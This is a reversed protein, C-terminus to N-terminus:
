ISNQIYEKLKEISVREQQMTDRNRITVTDKLEANSEGLTDFDVTVCFPTGIEDQRRYRKGINGNDDFESMFNEAVISYVEQAKAVLDPKNKLLPFVAVKIPSLRYDLKLVDRTQGNELTETTHANDLFALLIRNLGVSSEVVNPTYRENTKPDLYTLNAGSFKSHQSLDWDGRAHLGEIEKFENGLCYFQYEIDYAESAYHALKIHKYFRLKEPSIGYEQYWEIRANKWEAYKKAVLDPHCFYQMEMQEFERTRFVFQRAIIENRFAKGIQAIGFPPKLRTSDLVNKFNLYIGQCTEARLYVVNEETLADTPSGLNSKVMLSFRKAPTLDTSGCLPCKFVTGKAKLETIIQNIESIPLKDANIGYTELLIDARHRAKCKKCDIQPDDFCDIHGSAKWTTPHMFIASDILVIDSNKQVVSKVWANQLNNKLLTGYFGYDYVGAFKGYIESSPYIFGEAKAWSAIKDISNFM